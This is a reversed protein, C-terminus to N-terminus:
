QFAHVYAWAERLGRPRLLAITAAYAALGIAGAAAAPFLQASVAFALAAPIGTYAAAELLGRAVCELCAFSLMLLLIALIAATTLGLAVAIGRLEFAEYGVWVVPVHVLLAAASLLPVFRGRGRVFLLPYAVSVGISAVIWPSLYVVLHGLEAGVDGSYADGLALRLLDEGTVAFVGAAAAVLALGLWSINVVHRGARLGDLGARTLPVSSVLALSSATVAVLSASLLYAYSLSTLAGVGLEGAFRLCVVYLGQLALPLAVGRGFLALRSRLGTLDVDLRTGTRALLVAVPVGLAIAGNLFM